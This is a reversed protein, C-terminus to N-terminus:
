NIKWYEIGVGWPLLVISDELIGDEEVGAKYFRLSQKM